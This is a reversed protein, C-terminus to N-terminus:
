AAVEIPKAAEAVKTEEVAEEQAAEAEAETEEEVTKETPAAVSEEAGAATTITARVAGSLRKLLSPKREIKETKDATTITEDTTSLDVKQEGDANKAVSADTGEVHEVHTSGEANIVDETSVEGSKVEVENKDKSKTVRSFFGGSSQSTVAGEATVVESLNKESSVVVTEETPVVPAPPPPAPKKQFLGAFFSPKKEPAPPTAPKDAKAEAAKAKSAEVADDVAKLAQAKAEDVDLPNEVPAPAAPPEETKPSKKGFLKFGGSKAKPSKPPEAPAAVADTTHSVANESEHTKLADVEGEQVHTLEQKKETKLESTVGDAKKKEHSTAVASFGFFSKRKKVIPTGNEIEIDDPEGDSNIENDSLIAASNKAHEFAERTVLKKYVEQFQPSAYPDPESKAEDAKEKIAKVWGKAKQPSEASFHYDRNKTSVVFSRNKSSKEVREVSNVDRLNIIGLINQRHLEDDSKHYYLLGTGKTNAQAVNVLLDRNAEEYVEEVTKPPPTSTAAVVDKSTEEADKGEKVPAKGAAVESPAEAAPAPAPVKKVRRENRKHVTKLNDLSVPETGFAFFRKNWPHLPNTGRKQLYGGEIDIDEEEESKTASANSKAVATAEAAETAEVQTTATEEKTM